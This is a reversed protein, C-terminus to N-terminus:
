KEVTRNPISCIIEWPFVNMNIGSAFKCVMCTKINYPCSPCAVDELQRATHFPGTSSQPLEIQEYPPEPTEVISEPTSEPTSEPNEVISELPNDGSSFQKRMCKILKKCEEINKILWDSYKIIELRINDGCKEQFEAQKKKATEWILPVPNGKELAYDGIGKRVVNVSGGMIIYHDRKIGSERKLEDEYLKLTERVDEYTRM